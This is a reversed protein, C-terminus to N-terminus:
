VARPSLGLAAESAEFLQQAAIPDVCKRPLKKEKFHHTFASGSVAGAEPSTAVWALVAAGEEVPKFLVPALVSSLARGLAGVQNVNDTLTMPPLAANFTVGGLGAAEARQSFAVSFLALMVKSDPSSRSRSYSGRGPNELMEPRSRSLPHLYAGESLTSVIRADNALRGDAALQHVLLFHGLYNAAYSRECGGATVEFGLGFVGANLMLLDVRPLGRALALVSPMDTLDCPRPEVRAAAVAGISAQFDAVTAAGKEANRCPIVVHAGRLAFVRACERGLGSTAGTVVAHKNSLDVGETVSEATAKM